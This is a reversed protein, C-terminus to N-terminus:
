PVPRFVLLAAESGLVGARQAVFLRDLEPVFLSTRAGSKTAICAALRYSGGEAAFVDASGSGCSVYIRQRRNDFFVNDADGCTELTAKISGTGSDLLVLSAPTRYVVARMHRM